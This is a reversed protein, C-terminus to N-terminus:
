PGDASRAVHTHIDLLGPVVLKGRGDITDAADAAINAGVAAIRGGAIALDRVADLRTAPDIVRGGRIVLDYRTQAAVSAQAIAMAAATKAAASMFERRTVINRPQIIVVSGTARRDRTGSRRSHVPENSRIRGRTRRM